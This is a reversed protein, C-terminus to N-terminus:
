HSLSAGCINCLRSDTQCMSYDTSARCDRWIDDSRNFTATKIADAINAGYSSVIVATQVAQVFLLIWGWKREETKGMCVKHVKTMKLELGVWWHNNLPLARYFNSAEPVAAPDSCHRLCVHLLVLSSQSLVYTYELTKTLFTVQELYGITRGIKM